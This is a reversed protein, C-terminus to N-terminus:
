TWICGQGWVETDRHGWAGMDRLDFTGKDGYTWAVMDEHEQPGLDEVDGRVGRDGLGQTGTGRSM